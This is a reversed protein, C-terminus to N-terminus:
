WFVVICMYFEALIFFINVFLHTYSVPNNNEDVTFEKVQENVFYDVVNSYNLKDQPISNWLSATAILIIGILVIYFIAIKFGNKM